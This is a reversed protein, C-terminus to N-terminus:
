PEPAYTKPGSNTILLFSTHAKKILLAQLTSKCARVFCTDTLEIYLFFHLVILTYYLSCLLLLHSSMRILM